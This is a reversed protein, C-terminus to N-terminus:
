ELLTTDLLKLQLGTQTELLQLRAEYRTVADGIRVTISPLRVIKTTTYFFGDTCDDLYTTPLQRLSDMLVDFTLADPNTLRLDVQYLQQNIEVAAVRLVGETLDISSEPLLRLVQGTNGSTNGSTNGLVYLGGDADEAFGMIFLGVSDRELLQLEQIDNGERWYFLRGDRNATKAYDAFIYSGTLLSSTHRGRYVFGGIISIGEDHDYAAVPDILKDDNLVANTVFGAADGNSEFVFPGEKLAWGYNGGAIIRNIEEVKNQGVDAAYLTNTTRDVSLRFPNRLGYAFIEAVADTQNVFPNDNPIGYQKNRSNNGLPDIRLISGWPTQLNQGNAYPDDAGGGDGLAIYLLGKADFVMGGGNHNFQPQAIRLLVRPDAPRSDLNKPQTVQWVKVVSDHDANELPFDANATAPESSYTYLLGNDAYNPHFAFGLFGREDYSGAGSIGLTILTDSLDAFVIKEGTTLNIRWLTGTQDGVYLHDPDGPAATGFNPAVMGEALPKLHIHVGGQAITQPFPNDLPKPTSTATFEVVLQPRLSVNTFERSNFRKATRNSAENGILIWGFNSDPADLWHQVDAVLTSTSAWSYTEGEVGIAQNASATAVFDGGNQQWTEEDFYTHLWTADGKEAKTGSGEEGLASSSSEGWDREMRHVQVTETGAVSQSMHLSLTVSNITAGTPIADAIPFALLARRIAGNRTKGAFLYKGQGNSLNGDASEFLSNDKSPNLTVTEAYICTSGLLLSIGLWVHWLM